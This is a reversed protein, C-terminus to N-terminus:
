GGQPQVASDNRLMRLLYLGALAVFALDLLSNQFAIAITAHQEQIQFIWATALWDVTGAVILLVCNRNSFAIAPVKSLSTIWVLGFTSSRPVLAGSLAFLIALKYLALFGMCVLLIWRVISAFRMRM